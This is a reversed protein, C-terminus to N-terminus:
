AETRSAITSSLTSWSEVTGIDVFSGDLIAAHVHEGAAVLAPLTTRELSVATGEPIAALVRPEVVYVGANVLGPGAFGKEAFTRVRGDDEADITGFREADHVHVVAITVLPHARRHADVLADLDLELHTDGNLLLFPGDVFRAAHRVAGGTGLPAPEPSLVFAVDPYQAELRGTVHQEVLESLYGTLLVVRRVGARHLVGVLLDLFPREGIPALVKPVDAVADRLRTGLGGCLVFASEIM